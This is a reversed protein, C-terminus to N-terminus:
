NRADEVGIAFGSADRQVAVNGAIDPIPHSGWKGSFWGAKRLIAALHPTSVAVGHVLEPTPQFQEVRKEPPPAIWGKKVPDVKHKRCIEEVLQRNCIASGALVEWPLPIENWVKTDPELEGDSRWHWAVVDAAMLRLVKGLCLSDLEQEMGMNHLLAIWAERARNWASATNNWTSSDDGKKVVMSARRFTNAEWVEKLLGAIEDLKTFWTGLLTGRQADTLNELVVRDTYVHAVAWWNTRQPHDLLRRFLGDAIEDYPRKQSQNTFESRMNCRASYYSIFAATAPDSSFEERPLFIALRSKGIRMLEYKKQERAYTKLKKEFRSLFRFLKNYRRRSLDLGAEKRQATNLRDKKFDSSGFTKRITKGLDEVFKAVREGDACEAASWTATQQFLELAKDFQRQATVPRQFDQTMSSATFFGKKLSHAAAKDLLKIEAPSLTERFADLIMQAVDEPRRRQQLTAFLEEM